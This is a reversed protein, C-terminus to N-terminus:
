QMYVMSLMYYTEVNWWKFYTNKTHLAVKFLIETIDHYDTKIPPTGAVLWKCIEDCLATDLVGWWSCFEFECHWHHYASIAYTAVMRDFCDRWRFNFFETQNGGDSGISGIIHNLKWWRAIIKYLNVVM